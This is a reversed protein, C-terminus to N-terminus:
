RARRPQERLALLEAHMDGMYRRMDGMVRLTEVMQAQRRRDTERLKAIEAQQMEGLTMPAIELVAETPDVWTDRIGYGVEGIGRRRVKADLTSVFGYDIGQGETPRATFSESIEYKSGLTSLCLRKRPPMEAADILAQTSAMRLTQIQTPCRSSSLLPSPIPPPSTCASPATCRALRERTSPPLLSTLPSPLPTPMALLREVEAEPPLYTAAQLRVIIRAGTTTTDTFPPPIVLYTGEPPSVLEVPPIVIASDAPALHEEEEDEDEEDEDEDDADDGSSDGDDDDEDDAGDMLYDVPGDETEDDYDPDHPQIFMPEHEDEDQPVPLTQPEKPDPIYDPSPPAVLRMPLGDYGYVTVRPSGGESLEENAVWFVRGPEFDIYVSTYTVASSAFSMFAIIVDFSGHGFPILDIDFVHVKIELKCSKIVKDIEVLQGSAIEIEYRFGTVINPDQRAKEVRLMFPRGRPQNGQNGRGHGGNNAVVQNPRNGEPGQARNLRSCASRVHDTSGCEYYARVTPNRANVHNVNRPVGTNDRGVPNTTSAFANGIRTRKNDDRGNKDKSSEGVHGRKEVKKISGNRKIKRSEPTVLHPVLRALEHFTLAKGMFSGATYKVKQDISCGSMEQVNKMKEIWRTLVIAGGKGDYEKPNCALFEKYSCGIWNGNVLVNRVNEQVNENVVNGNQKKVNGQNGVQALMALLLNQLQQTIITSFDPAGGVGGNVGEVGGNSGLGQDNGQGSFKDVREEIGESPRRGRGGRGVHVGTGGGRSKAVPLSASRNMVRSHRGLDSRFGIDRVVGIAWVPTWIWVYVLVDLYQFHYKFVDVIINTLEYTQGPYAYGDAGIVVCISPLRVWGIWDIVCISPYAYGRADSDAQMIKVHGEKTAITDEVQAIADNLGILKTNEDRIDDRLCILTNFVDNADGMAEIEASFDILDDTVWRAM